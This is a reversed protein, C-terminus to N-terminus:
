DSKLGIPEKTIARLIINLGSLIVGQTTADLILGYKLQLFTAILAVLNLWITKSSWWVKTEVEIGEL